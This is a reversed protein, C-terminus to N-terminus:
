DHIPFFSSTMIQQCSTITMKKVNDHKKKNLQPISELKMDIDNRTRSNDCNKSTLSKILIGSIPFVRTQTQDLIELSCHTLSILNSM